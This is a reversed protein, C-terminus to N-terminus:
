QIPSFPAAMLIQSQQSIVDDLAHPLYEEVWETDGYLRARRKERDAADRYRWIHVVQHLTGVETIWYAVLEAYRSIVPLGREEFDTVYAPLRGPRLTYTRMEFLL